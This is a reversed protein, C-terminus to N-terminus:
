KDKGYDDDGLRKIPEFVFFSLWFSNQGFIM